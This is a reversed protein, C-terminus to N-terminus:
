QVVLRLVNNFVECLDAVLPLPHKIELPLKCQNAPSFAVTNVINTHGNLTNRLKPEQALLSSAMGVLALWLMYKM